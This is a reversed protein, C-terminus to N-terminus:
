SEKAERYIEKYAALVNDMCFKRRASAAGAAVLELSRGPNRALRIMEAAIAVPSRVDTLVGSSGDDLTGAVAGSSAGAIVPIGLAM